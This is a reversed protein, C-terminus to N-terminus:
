KNNLVLFLIFFDYVYVCVIERECVRVCAAMYVSEEDMDVRIFAYYAKAVGLLDEM